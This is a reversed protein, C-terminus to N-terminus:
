PDPAEPGRSRRLLYTDMIWGKRERAETRAKEITTAVEALPGSVLIEDPTGVYAGWFIEVSRGDVLGDVDIQRFALRGDLMVVVDDVGDPFGDSLLRGTTIQVPRGVRNLPTRHRAALASVSSIGPIVEYDFDVDGRALVADLVDITGDYLTPDGWVLFAGCEGDALGDAVLREYLDTRRTRWEGVAEAYPTTSRDRAPDEAQVWRYAKGTAHREVITRRLQVLDAKAEGKDIVFFVDVQQLAAVAQLTLHDPDGAGIGIVLIRRM